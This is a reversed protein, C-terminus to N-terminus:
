VDFVVNASLGDGTEKINLNHYTAAKIEKSLSEIRAGSVLAVLQNGNLQLNFQDFALGESETLYILESLFDILLIEPELFSIEIKHTVRPHASLKLGALHYMGRAAQELLSGLDPAWIELEWDATHAIERFGFSNPPRM